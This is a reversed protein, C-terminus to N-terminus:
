MEFESPYIELDQLEEVFSRGHSNNHNHFNLPAGTLTDIATLSYRLECTLTAPDMFRQPSTALVCWSSGTVNPPLTPIAVVMSPLLAEDSSEAVVFSVDALTRPSLDVSTSSNTIKAQLVLYRPYYHKIITVHPLYNNNNTPNHHLPHLPLPPSISIPPQHFKSLAPVTSIHAQSQIQRETLTQKLHLYNARLLSAAVTLRRVQSEGDKLAPVLFPRSVASLPVHPPLLRLAAARDMRNNRMALVQIASAIGNQKSDQSSSQHQLAVRILPLYACSSEGSVKKKRQKLNNRQYLSDCYDLALDMRNMDHYLITLADMHRGMQGFILATEYQLFSNQASPLAVSLLDQLQLGKQTLICRKFKARYLWGLSTTTENTADREALIGELLLHAHVNQLEMIIDDLPLLDDNVDEEEDEKSMLASELYTIAMARGTDLPLPISPDMQETEKPLPQEQLTTTTPSITTLFDVVEKSPPQKKISNLFITSLAMSPYQICVEQTLAHSLVFTEYGDICFLDSLHSTLTHIMKSTKVSSSNWLLNLSENHNGCARHLWVCVDHKEQLIHPIIWNVVEQVASNNNYNSSHKQQKVCSQVISLPQPMQWALLATSCIIIAPDDVSSSTLIGYRLYEMLLQKSHETNTANGIYHTASFSTQLATALETRPFGNPGFADMCMTMIRDAVTRLSEKEEELLQCKGSHSGVLLKNFTTPTTTTTTTIYYVDNPRTGVETTQYPVAMCAVLRVHLLGDQTIAYVKESTLCLHVIPCTLGTRCIVTGTTTNVLMMQKGNACVCNTSANNSTVVIAPHVQSSSPFEVLKKPVTDSELLQYFCTGVAVVVVVNDNEHRLVTMGYPSDTRGGPSPLTVNWKTKQKNSPSLSITDQGSCLIFSKTQSSYTAMNIRGVNMQLLTGSSSYLQGPYAGNSYYHDEMWVLISEGGYLIGVLAQQQQQQQQVQQEQQEQQQQQEMAVCSIDLGVQVKRKNTLLTRSHWSGFETGYLVIGMVDNNPDDEDDEDGFPNRTKPKKKKTTLEGNVSSPTTYLCMCNSRAKLDWELM